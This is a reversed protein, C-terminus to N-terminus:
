SVKPRPIDIVEGITAYNNGGLRSIPRLKSTDVQPKSPDYDPVLIENDVHIRVIKALVIETTPDGNTNTLPHVYDLECEYTVAAEKVRPASIAQCSAKTLGSADFEDVDPAFLGCTHNAADLYWESMINVAFQKSKQINVFSDKKSRARGKRCFGIALMPPDHAVAGFYSFPSVNDVKTDPNTSSVLAIPRPTVTSIMLNYANALKSPDFVQVDKGFETTPPSPTQGPKYKPRTAMTPKRSLYSTLLSGAVVGVGM